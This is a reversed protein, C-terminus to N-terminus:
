GNTNELAKLIVYFESGKDKESQVAIEVNMLDALSKSISLGLGTGQVM